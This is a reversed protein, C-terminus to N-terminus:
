YNNEFIFETTSSIEGGPLVYQVTVPYKGKYLSPFLNRLKQETTGLKYGYCEKDILISRVYYWDQVYFVHPEYLWPFVSLDTRLQNNKIDEVYYPNPLIAKFPPCGYAQNYTSKIPVFKQQYLIAMEKTYYSDTGTAEMRVLPLNATFENGLVEAEDFHESNKFTYGLAYASSNIKDYWTDHINTAKLKQVFTNYKSTRMKFSLLLIDTKNALVDTQNSKIQVGQVSDVNRYTTQGIIDKSADMKAVFRVNYDTQKKLNSPISFTLRNTGTNYMLPISVFSSDPKVYEVAYEVNDMFLYDQGRVLQVFGSSSEKVYLNQQGKIPYMFEINKLPINNPADSTRFSISREERSVEGSTVVQEWKGNKLEEFTLSATFTFSSFPKLVDDSFFSVKDNTREM